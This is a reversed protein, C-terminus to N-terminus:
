VQIFKFRKINPYKPLKSRIDKRLRTHGVVLLYQAEEMVSKLDKHWTLGAFKTKRFMSEVAQINPDETRIHVQGSGWFRGEKRIASDVLNELENLPYADFCIVGVKTYEM